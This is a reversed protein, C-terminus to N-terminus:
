QLPVSPLDSVPHNGMVRLPAPEDDDDDDDDEDGDLNVPAIETTIMVEASAVHKGSVLCMKSPTLSSLSRFRM